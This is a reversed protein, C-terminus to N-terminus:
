NDSGYREEKYITYIEPNEQIFDKGASDDNYLFVINEIPKRMYAFVPSEVNASGCSSDFTVRLEKEALEPYNTCLWTLFEAVEKVTAGKNM